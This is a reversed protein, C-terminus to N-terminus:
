NREKTGHKANLAARGRSGRFYEQIWPHDLALLEDITGVAEVKKDAEASAKASVAQGADTQGAAKTKEKLKDLDFAWAGSAALALMAIFIKKM